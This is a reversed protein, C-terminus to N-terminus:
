KWREDKCSTNVHHQREIGEIEMYRIGNICVSDMHKEQQTRTNEKKPERKKREIEDKMTIEDYLFFFTAYRKYDDDYLYVCVCECVSM